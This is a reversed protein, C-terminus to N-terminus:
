VAERRAQAAEHQEKRAVLHRAIRCEDCLYGSPVTDGCSWCLGDRYDIDGRVLLPGKHGQQRRAWMAKAREIIAPERKRAHIDFQLRKWARDMAAFEAHLRDLLVQREANLRRGQALRQEPTLEEPKAKAARAM